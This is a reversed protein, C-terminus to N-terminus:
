LAYRGSILLFDKLSRLFNFLNLIAAMQHLDFKVNVSCFPLLKMIETDVIHNEPIGSRNTHDAFWMVKSMANHTFDLIVAM